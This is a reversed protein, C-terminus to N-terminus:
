DDTTRVASPGEHAPARIPWRTTVTVGRTAEGSVDLAGGHASTVSQALSLGWGGNSNTREGFHTVVVDVMGPESVRVSLVVPGDAHESESTAELADLVINMLAQRVLTADAMVCPLDIPALVEIHVHRASAESAVLRVVERVSDTLDTAQLLPERRVALDHLVQLSERMRRQEALADRLAETAGRLREATQAPADDTSVLELRRLAAAVNMEIATLPQRLDHTVAAVLEGAVVLRASRAADARATERIPAAGKAAVDFVQPTDSEM